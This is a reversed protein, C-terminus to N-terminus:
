TTEEEGVRRNWAEICEQRDAYWATFPQIECDANRCEIGFKMRRYLDEHPEIDPVGGCFPCPKLEM